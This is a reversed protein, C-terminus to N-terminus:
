PRLLAMVSLEEVGVDLLRLGVTNLDLQVVEVGPPAGMGAAAAIGGHEVVEKGEMREYLALAMKRATDPDNKALWTHVAHMLIQLLPEGGSGASSPAPWNLTKRPRFRFKLNNWEGGASPRVSSVSRRDGVDRDLWPSVGYLTEDFPDSPAAFLANWFEVVVDGLHRDGDYRVGAMRLADTFPIHYPDDRDEVTVSRTGAADTGMAIGDSSHYVYFQVRSISTTADASTVAEFEELEYVDVLPFGRLRHEITEMRGRRLRKFVRLTRPSAAAGAPAAAALDMDSM